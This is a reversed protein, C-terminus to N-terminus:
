IIRRLKLTVEKKEGNREILLKLEKGKQVFLEDFEYRSKDKTVINNIQLVKDGAIIGAEGAPSDAFIKDVKFSRTFVIGTMNYELDVNYDKNPELYLRCNFYDFTINFRKMLPLGIIGCALSDAALVEGKAFNTLLNPFQYKGLTLSEIRGKFGNIPGSAGYGLILELTKSPLKIRKNYDMNISINQIGGLDIDAPATINTGDELRLTIPVSYAGNSMLTMQLMIGKESYKYDDPRHLIFKMKDFNIEVIFHKFFTNCIQGDFGELFAAMGVSVLVPQETFAIGPFSIVIPETGYMNIGEGTGAGTAKVDEVVRKLKLADVRPGGYLWTEDWLHGNDLSLKVKQGKIEANFRFKNQYIEFPIEIDGKIDTMYKGPAPGLDKNTGKYQAITFGTSLFLIVIIISVYKM